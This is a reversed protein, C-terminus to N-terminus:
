NFKLHHFSSEQGKVSLWKFWLNVPFHKNNFTFFPVVCFLRIFTLVLRVLVHIVATDALVNFLQARPTTYSEQHHM